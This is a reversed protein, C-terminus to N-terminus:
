QITVRKIDVLKATKGFIECVDRAERLATTEDETEILLGIDRDLYRITAYHWRALHDLRSEGILGLAGPRESADVEDKDSQKNFPM